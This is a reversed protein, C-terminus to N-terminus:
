ILVAYITWKPIGTGIRDSIWTPEFVDSASGLVATQVAREVLMPWWVQSTWRPVIVVTKGRPSNESELLLNGITNFRVCKIQAGPWTKEVRAASEATLKWSKCWRKSLRDAHQNEERPVWAYIPSLDHLQLLHYIDKVLDQNNRSSGKTLNCVSDRSDLLFLPRPNIQPGRHWLLAKLTYLERRTSSSGILEEPLPESFDPMSGDMAMAGVGAEGADLKYTSGSTQPAIPAGNHNQFLHELMELEENGEASLIMVESGKAKAAAIETYIARMWVKVAPIALAQSQVFGTLQEMSKVTNSGAASNEAAGKILSIGRLVKERLSFFDLPETDMGLGLFALDPGPQSQGKNNLTWGLLDLLWFSFACTEKSQKPQAAFMWDDAYNLCRICLCRFFATVPQNIKAFYFPGEGNGFCLVIPRIVEDKHMFCCYYSAKTSLRVSYYAKTLDGSWLDDGQKIMQPVHKALSAQRFKVYPLHSNFFREDDCRRPKGASNLEVQMPNIVQAQEPECSVFAGSTRGECIEKHSFDLHEYYSSHNPFRLREPQVAPECPIGYCLFSLVSAQTGIAAWFGVRSRLKDHHATLDKWPNGENLSQGLKELKEKAEKLSLGEYDEPKAWPAGKILKESWATKEAEDPVTRKLPCYEIAHGPTGCFVCPEVPVDFNKKRPDAPNKFEGFRSKLTFTALPPM